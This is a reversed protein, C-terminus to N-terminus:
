ADGDDLAMALFASAAGTLWGVLILAFPGFDGVDALYAATLVIGLLPVALTVLPLSAGQRTPLLRRRSGLRIHRILSERLHVYLSAFRNRAPSNDVIKASKDM